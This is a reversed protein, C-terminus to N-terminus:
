INKQSPSAYHHAFIILLGYYLTVAFGSGFIAPMPFTVVSFLHIISLEYELLIGVVRETCFALYPSALGFLVMIGGFSIVALWPIMIFINSIFSAVSFEGFTNAVIPLIALNTSLSLMAHSKWQLMGEDMWHFCNNIAPGLYYIGLFSLFSLQFAADTLLTPNILVMGTAAFTLANRPNFVRGTGRAIVAFAGMVGARIASITGGSALVFLVISGLTIFLLVKRPIHDKLAAGLASAIIAIKYGYMTVIYSTGSTEMEAKLVDSVTGTTGIM